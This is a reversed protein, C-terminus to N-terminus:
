EGLKVLLYGITLGLGVLLVLAQFAKPAARGPALVLFICPARIWIRLSLAMAVLLLGAVLLALHDSMASTGQFRMHPGASLHKGSQSM